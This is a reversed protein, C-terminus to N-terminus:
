RRREHHPPNHPPGHPPGHPGPSGGGGDPAGHFQCCGAACTMWVYSSGGTQYGDADDDVFASPGGRWEAPRAHMAVLGTTASSDPRWRAYSSPWTHAERHFRFRWANLGQVLHVNGSWNAVGVSRGRRVLLYVMGSSNQTGFGLNPPNWLSDRRVWGVIRASDQQVMASDLCNAQSVAAVTGKMPQCKGAVRAPCPIVTQTETGQFTLQSVFSQFAQWNGNPKLLSDPVVPPPTCTSQAVALAPLAAAWCAALARLAARAASRGPQTRPRAPPRPGAPRYWPVPSM